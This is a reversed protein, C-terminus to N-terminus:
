ALSIKQKSIIDMSGSDFIESREACNIESGVDTNM